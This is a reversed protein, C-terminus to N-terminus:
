RRANNKKYLHLIIQALLMFFIIGGVPFYWADKTGRWDFFVLGFVCGLIAGVILQYIIASLLETGLPFFMRFVITWVTSKPNNM